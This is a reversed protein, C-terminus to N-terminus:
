QSILSRVIQIAKQLSLFIAIATIRISELISAGAGGWALPLLAVQSSSIASANQNIVSQLDDYRIQLTLCSNPSQRVLYIRTLILQGSGLLGMSQMRGILTIILVARQIVAIALGATRPDIEAQTVIM